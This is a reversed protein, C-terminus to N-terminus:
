LKTDPLNELNRGAKHEFINQTLSTDGLLATLVVYEGGGDM